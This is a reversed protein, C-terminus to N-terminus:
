RIGHMGSIHTPKRLRYKYFHSIVDVLKNNPLKNKNDFDIGVLVGQLSSIHSEIAESARNLHAGIDTKLNQIHLWRAHKPIFFTNTYESENEALREAELWTKGLSLYSSINEFQQEEFADSLRKLFLMGFIYDKYESADM